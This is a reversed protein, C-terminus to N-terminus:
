LHNRMRRGVMVQNTLYHVMVFGVVKSVTVYTPLFSCLCTSLNFLLKNMDFTLSSMANTNTWKMLFKCTRILSPRSKQARHVNPSSTSFELETIKTYICVSVCVCVCVGYLCVCEFVCVCVCVYVCVCVCVDGGGGGGGGGGGFVTVWVQPHKKVDFTEGQSGTVHSILCCLATCLVFQSM